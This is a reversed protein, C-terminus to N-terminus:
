EKLLIVTKDEYQKDLIIISLPQTNYSQKGGTKINYTYYLSDGKEIVKIPTIETEIDTVPLIIALAFQKAFDIATPKGDDGAFAAMGFLREFDEATTIKPDTPIAQGNKFFYNRAVEFAVENGGDGPSSSQESACAALVLLAAITFFVKKMKYLINQEAM